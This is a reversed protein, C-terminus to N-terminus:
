LTSIEAYAGFPSPQLELVRAEAGHAMFVKRMVEGAKSGPPGLAVVSPGAGGLFAGYAGALRAAQLMEELGEILHARYPQHIRDQMATGLKDWDGDRLAMALMAARALNFVADKLSVQEPLIHRALSTSLTFGPIVTYAVLGAPPKFCTYLYDPAASANDAAANEEPVIVVVGGMLAAAVNDPHGELAIAQSLIQKLSLPYGAVANAAVLGGVIAAASSGLGSQLPINNSLHLRWGSAPHSSVEFLRNIAQAVLNSKDRPLAQEGEGAVEIQYGAGTEELEVVNYLNLAMGMADFGSGLNAV